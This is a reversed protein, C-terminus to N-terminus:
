KGYIQEKLKDKEKESIGILDVLIWDGNEDNYYMDYQPESYYCLDITKSNIQPWYQSDDPNLM